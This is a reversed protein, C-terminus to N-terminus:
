LIKLLWRPKWFATACSLFMKHLQSSCRTRILIAAPLLCIQLFFLLNYCASYLRVANSRWSYSLYVPVHFFPPYCKRRTSTATGQSTRVAPSTRVASGNLLRLYLTVPTVVPWLERVHHRTVEYDASENWIKFYSWQVKRTDHESYLGRIAQFKM